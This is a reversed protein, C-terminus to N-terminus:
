DTSNSANAERCAATVLTELENCSDLELRGEFAHKM